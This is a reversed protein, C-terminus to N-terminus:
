ELFLFGSQRRAFKGGSLNVKAPLTQTLLGRVAEVDEFSIDGIGHQAMWSRLLRRTHAVPLARLSKVSLRDERAAPKSITVLQTLWDGEAGLIEAARWLAQPADPSFQKQLLPLLRHRLWNRRHHTDRNTADERWRLKHQKAYAAIEKRWVGLWPRHVTLARHTSLSQMGRASSGGGRLLQLLFTEVQDDANHALILDQCRLKTAAKAFFEWRAARASQETKKTTARAKATIGKLKWKKALTTVFKADAASAAGRWGHDFHLVIPQKGAAVLAHLLVVSDIGGSVGVLCRSPLSDLARVLPSPLTTTAMFNCTM